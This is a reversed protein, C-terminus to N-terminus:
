DFNFLNLQRPKLEEIIKRCQTIYYSYNVDYISEFTEGQSYKWNLDEDSYLVNHLRVGYGKLMNQYEKVGSDEKWKWLYYGSNSVYFRNIRQQVQENYEVTWQKGTKESQLFKRIDICNKITDEVPTNDIFYNIIAEPIIKPSLGKGLLVETIFMGKTKVFDKHIDNITEYKEGKRNVAKGNYFESKKQKYGEKVAIYDNIAYQYMAEFRDEELELKTLKEWDKCVQQVQSYKNKKLLVFLGDTNAQVIRCGLESLAEALM